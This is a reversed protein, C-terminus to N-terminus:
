FLLAKIALGWIGTGALICPLLWWGAPLTLKRTERTHLALTQM